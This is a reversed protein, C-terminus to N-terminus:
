DVIGVHSARPAMGPALLAEPSGLALLPGSLAHFRLFGTRGKMLRNQGDDEGREPKPQSCGQKIHDWKVVDTTPEPPQEPIARFHACKGTSGPSAM